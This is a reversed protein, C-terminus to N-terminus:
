RRRGLWRGLDLLKLVSAAGLFSLGAVALLLLSGLSTQWWAAALSAFAPARTATAPPPSVTAARFWAPTASSM